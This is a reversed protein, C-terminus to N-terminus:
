VTFYYQFDELKYKLSLFYIDRSFQIKSAKIKYKKGGKLTGTKVLPAKIKFAVRIYIYTYMQIDYLM